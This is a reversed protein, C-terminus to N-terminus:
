LRDRIWLILGAALATGLMLGGVITPLEIM